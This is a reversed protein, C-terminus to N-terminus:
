DGVSRPAKFADLEHSALDASEQSVFEGRKDREIEAEGRDRVGYEELQAAEDDPDVSSFLRGFWARV